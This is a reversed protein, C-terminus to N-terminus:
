GPTKPLFRHPSRSYALWLQSLASRLRYLPTPTDRGRKGTRHCWQELVWTRLLTEAPDLLSVLFASALTALLLLKKRREGTWARPSEM